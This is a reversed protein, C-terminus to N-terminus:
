SGARVQAVRMGASRGLVANAGSAVNILLAAGQVNPKAETKALRPQWVLRRIDPKAIMRLIALALHRCARIQRISSGRAFNLLGRVTAPWATTSIRFLATSIRWGRRYCDLPPQHARRPCVARRARGAILPVPAGPGHSEGSPWQCKCALAHSGEARNREVLIRCGDAEDDFYSDPHAPPLNQCHM